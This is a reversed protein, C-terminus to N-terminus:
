IAQIMQYLQDKLLLRRKKKDELYVDSSVEIEAEIREVEQNVEGYEDLMRAFHVNHQKLSLITDRHEPLEHFLDHNDNLM